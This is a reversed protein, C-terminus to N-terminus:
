KKGLIHLWGTPLTKSTTTQLRSISSTGCQGCSYSCHEKYISTCVGPAQCNFFTDDVCPNWVSGQTGVTKTIITTTTTTEVTTSPIDITVIGTPPPIGCRTTATFSIRLHRGAHVDKDYNVNTLVFEKHDVSTSIIKANWPQLKYVVDSFKLHINWGHLDEHPVLTIIGDYGCNWAIVTYVGQEETSVSSQHGVTSKYPVQTSGIASSSHTGDSSTRTGVTAKYSLQTTVITSSSLTGNSSTRTEATTSPVDITVTGTPPPIGCRTTATFSMRLHKGTQVDKDYNVNTLVFETHDVSTTIIKADWPQLNYVVDSFKLHINWGHLDEHPVLTIQGDFGCDWAKVTYVGQEESSVSSLITLLYLIFM